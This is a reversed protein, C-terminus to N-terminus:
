NTGISFGSRQEACRRSIRPRESFGTLWDSKPDRVSHNTQLQLSDVPTLSPIVIFPTYWTDSQLKIMSEAPDLVALHLKSRVPTRQTAERSTVAASQPLASYSAVLEAATKTPLFPPEQEVIVNHVETCVSETNSLSSPSAKTVIYSAM